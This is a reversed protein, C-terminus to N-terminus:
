QEFLRTNLHTELFFSEFVLANLSNKSFFYGFVRTNKINEKFVALCGPTKEYNYM